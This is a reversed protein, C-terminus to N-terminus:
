WLKRLFGPGEPFEWGTPDGWWRHHRCVVVEQGVPRAYPLPIDNGDAKTSVQVERGDYLTVWTRITQRGTNPDEDITTHRPSFRGAAVEEIGV